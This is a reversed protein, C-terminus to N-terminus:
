RGKGEREREGGGKGKGIKKVKGKLVVRKEEGERRRLLLGRLDLYATQPLATFEGLPTQPRAVASISNPQM